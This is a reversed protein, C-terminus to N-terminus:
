QRKQLDAKPNKEYNNINNKLNDCLMQLSYEGEGWIAFDFDKNMEMVASAEDKSDFGGIVIPINANREKFIRSIIAAPVWQDFRATFGHLLIESFNIKGLEQDIIKIIINQQGLLFDNYFGHDKIIESPFLELLHLLIRNYTKKDGYISSMLSLFLLLKFLNEDITKNNIIEIKQPPFSKEM